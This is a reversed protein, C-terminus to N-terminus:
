QQRIHPPHACRFHSEIQELVTYWVTKKKNKTKKCKQSSVSMKHEVCHHAIHCESQATIKTNIDSIM